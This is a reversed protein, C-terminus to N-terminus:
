ANARRQDGFGGITLITQDEDLFRAFPAPMDNATNELMRLAAAKSIRMDARYNACISVYVFVRNTTTARLARKIDGVTKLNM